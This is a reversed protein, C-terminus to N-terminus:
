EAFYTIVFPFDILEQGESAELLEVINLTTDLIVYYTQGEVAEFVVEAHSADGLLGTTSEDCMLQTAESTCTTRVYVVSDFASLEGGLRVRQTQTATFSFVVESGILTGAGILIDALNNMGETCSLTSLTNTTRDQEISYVGFTNMPIPSACTGNGTTPTMGPNTPNTPNSGSTGDCTGETCLSGPPCHLSETCCIPTNPFGEDVQGDCDNDLGDCIEDSQQNPTAMCLAEERELDCTFVGQQYCMGDDSQISCMEGIGFNEDVQNDCDDDHNNCTELPSAPDSWEGQYCRLYGCSEKLRIEGETCTETLDMDLPPPPPIMQDIMMMMPGQDLQEILMGQDQNMIDINPTTPLEPLEDDCGSLILCSCLCLCFSFVVQHM